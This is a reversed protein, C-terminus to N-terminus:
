TILWDLLRRTLGLSRARLEDKQPVEFREGALLVPEQACVYLIHATAQLNALWRPPMFTSDASECQQETQALAAELPSFFVDLDVDPDTQLVRLIAVAIRSEEQNAWVSSERTLRLALINLVEIPTAIGAHVCVGLCDAGHAVAHLWGRELDYGRTDNEALYWRACADFISRDRDGADILWCLILPAFTRAQVEEHDFHSIAVARIDTLEENWRGSTIGEALESYAWGDRVRPDRSTMADLLERWTHGATSM